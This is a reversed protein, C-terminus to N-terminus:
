NDLMFSYPNKSEKGISLLDVKTGLDLKNAFNTLLNAMVFDELAWGTSDFVTPKNKFGQYSMKNQILSVLDPGINNPELQQCEGEKIAQEKFDPCVLSRELVSLPVEVKGPFDAGV